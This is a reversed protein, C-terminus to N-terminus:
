MATYDSHQAILRTNQSSTAIEAMDKSVAALFTLKHLVQFADPHQSLRAQLASCRQGAFRVACPLLVGQQGHSSTSGQEVQFLVHPAAMSLIECLAIAVTALSLLPYTCACGFLGCYRQLLLVLLLM